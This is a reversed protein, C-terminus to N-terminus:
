PASRHSCGQGRDRCRSQWQEVVGGVDLLITGRTVYLWEDGPHEFFRGTSLNGHVFVVPEGDPPGSELYHTRIRGQVTGEPQALVGAFSSGGGRGVAGGRGHFLRCADTPVELQAITDLLAQM